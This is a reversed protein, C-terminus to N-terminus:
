IQRFIGLALRRGDSVDAIESTIEVPMVSGDFCQIDVVRSVSFEGVASRRLQEGFTRPSNKPHLLRQHKGVLDRRSWGFLSEAQRNADLIVGSECDALLLADRSGDFVAKLRESSTQAQHKAEAAEYEVLALTVLNAVAQAFLRHATTWVQHAGKQELSFVGQLEGRIYIPTDLKAFIQHKPLYDVALEATAPNLYPDDAAIGGAGSLAKFYAPYRNARLVEGSSHEGRCREFLELCRLEQQEDTLAWIAVREVGSMQAASETLISLTMDLSAEKLYAGRSLSAIGEQLELPSMLAISRDPNLLQVM